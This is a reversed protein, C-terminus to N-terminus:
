SMNESLDIQTYLLMLTFKDVALRRLLGLARNAPQAVGKATIEYNLIQDLTLGLYVYRIVVNTYKWMAFAM